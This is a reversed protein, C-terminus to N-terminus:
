VEKSNKVKKELLIYKRCFNYLTNETQKSEEETLGQKLKEEIAQRIQFIKEDDYNKILHMLVKLLTGLDQKVYFDKDYDFAV